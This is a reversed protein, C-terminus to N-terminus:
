AMVFVAGGPFTGPNPSGAGSETSEGSISVVQHTGGLAVKGILELVFLDIMYRVKGGVQAGYFNNQTYFRERWTQQVDIVPSVHSGSMNLDSDLGLYRFGLLWVLNLGDGFDAGAGRLLGNAEAGM